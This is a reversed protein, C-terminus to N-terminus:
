RCVIIDGPGWFKFHTVHCQGRGKLPSKDDMHQSKVYGVQAWFKVFRAEATIISLPQHGGISSDNVYGSLARKLCSKSEM